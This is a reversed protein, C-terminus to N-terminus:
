ELGRTNSIRMTVKKKNNLSTLTGVNVLLAGEGAIHGDTASDEGSNDDFELHVPGNDDPPVVQMVHLLVVTELLTELLTVLVHRTVQRWAKSVNLWAIDSNDAFASGEGLCHLEVSQFHGLSGSVLFRELFELSKKM